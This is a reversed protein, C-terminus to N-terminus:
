FLRMVFAAFEQITELDETVDDVTLNLKENLQIKRIGAERFAEVAKSDVVKDKHVILNRKMVAANTRFVIEGIEVELQKKIKKAFEKPDSFIRWTDKDITGIRLLWIRRLFNELSSVCFVLILALSINYIEDMVGKIETRIPGYRDRVGAVLRRSRIRDRSEKIKGVSLLNRAIDLEHLFENWYTEVNEEIM